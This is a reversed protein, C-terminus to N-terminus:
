TVMLMDNDIFYNQIIECIKARNYNSIYWQCLFLLHEDTYAELTQPDQTYKRKLLYKIMIERSSQIEDSAFRSLVEEYNTNDPPTIGLSRLIRFLKPKSRTTCIEGRPKTRADDTSTWKKGSTTDIIRMNGDSFLTGYITFREYKQREQERSKQIIENYALFEYSLIPRWGVGESRKYIRINGDVNNFRSTVAYSTIDVENGSLTHLYVNEVITGDPNRTGVEPIPHYTIKPHSGDKRRRGRGQNPKAMEIKTATITAWPEPTVFVFAKQLQIFNRCFRHKILQDDTFPLDQNGLEIVYTLCEELLRVKTVLSLMKVKTAFLDLYQEELEHVDPYPIDRLEQVILNQDPSQRETVIDSFPISLIGVLQEGYISLEQRSFQESTPFERQTYVIVGDSHLYCRFGFRDLLGRKETILKEVAMHIYIKRFTGNEVWMKYLDVFSISGRERVLIIIKELCQEIIGDSYYIDYTSYDLESPLPGQGSAMALPNNLIPSRSNVCVFNCIDYDCIASGNIDDPRVNRDYNLLADFACRKLYRMMRKIHLDKRESHQYLQLDVSKNDKIYMSALDNDSTRVYCDGEAPISAMKYIKVIITVNNKAQLEADELAKTHAEEPDMHKEEIYSQVLGPLIDTVLQQRRENLLAEHSISRLFRSLAQHMGSPHWGPTVLFARVVNFLNIGDRATPSGIIVQCYEGHANQDSNFLELLADAKSNSTDSTLLGFRKKKILNSKIRRNGNSDLGMQFVSQSEDFHQWGRAEFCQGLLIAGSGTKFETFCFCNGNGAEQTEIELIQSFKCSLERFQVDDCIKKKLEESTVYSDARDSTVYKGLGSEKSRHQDLRSFGGGYTKDPFVFCSAERQPGFFQRDKDNRANEYGEGQLTLITREQEDVIYMTSPYVKVQSNINRTQMRVVPQIPHDINLDSGTWRSRASVFEVTQNDEPVEIQYTDKIMTGQYEPHAGTDLGRVYTVRGRFFPEVQSLTVKSYDWNTVPMQFDAPLILNMLPAIENVNNIMPTATAIIIKSRKILHFVRWLVNYVKSVQEARERNQRQNDPDEDTRNSNLDNRLNHGEDVLFICGSFEDIIEQDSMQRNVITNVFAKYTMIEYWKSVERTMNSKRVADKTANKVMSTEYEGATCNFIIQHKFDNKTSPGKELVYVRKIEQRHKKYYEALAVLACTKGTGTEQINLLKDYQRLYRTFAQQHRYYEGRKPAPERIRGTVEAFEKKTSIKWQLNPDDVDPYAPIFDTYKFM